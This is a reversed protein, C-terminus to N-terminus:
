ATPLPSLLLPSCPGFIPPAITCAGLLTVSAAWSTGSICLSYSHALSPNNMLFPSRDHMDSSLDSGQLVSALASLPFFTFSSLLYLLWSTSLPLSMWLCLHLLLGRFTQPPLPLMIVSVDTDLVCFCDPFTSICTDTGGLCSPPFVASLPTLLVWSTSFSQRLNISFFGFRFLFTVLIVRGTMPFTHPTSLHWFPSFLFEM